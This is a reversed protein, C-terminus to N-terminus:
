ANTMQESLLHHLISDLDEFMYPKALFSSFGATLMVSRTGKLVAATVAIIPINAIQEHQRFCNLIDFGSIGDLRIDLLVIKPSYFLAFELAKHGSSVPIPQYGLCELAYQAFLLSDEHDDIVLVRHRHSHADSGQQDLSFPSQDDADCKFTTGDDTYLLKRLM